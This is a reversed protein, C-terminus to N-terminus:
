NAHSNELLVDKAISDAVDDSLSVINKQENLTFVTQKEQPVETSSTQNNLSEADDPTPVIEMKADTPLDEQQVASKPLELSEPNVMVPVASKSLELSETNVTVPMTKDAEAERLTLVILSKRNIIELGVYDFAIKFTASFKFYDSIISAFLYTSGIEGRFCQELRYPDIDEEPDFYFMYVGDSPSTVSVLASVLHEETYSVKSQDAGFFRVNWNEASQPAVRAFPLELMHQIGKALKRSLRVYSYARLFLDLDLTMVDKNENMFVVCPSFMELQRDTANPNTAVSLNAVSLVYYTEGSRARWITGERLYKSKREIIKQIQEDSHHM